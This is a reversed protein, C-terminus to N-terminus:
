GGPSLGASVHGDPNLHLRDVLRGVEDAVDKHLLTLLGCAAAIVLVGKVAEFQSRACGQGRRRRGVVDSRQRTVWDSRVSTGNVHGVMHRDRM